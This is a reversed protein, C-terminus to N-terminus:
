WLYWWGFRNRGVHKPYGDSSSLHLAPAECHIKSRRGGRRAGCSLLPRYPGLTLRM